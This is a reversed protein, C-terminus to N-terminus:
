KISAKRFVVFALGAAFVLFLIAAPYILIFVIPALATRVAFRALAHKDVFDAIPPSYRYYEDVLVRGWSTPLLYEDRFTRLVQVHPDLYSGYAATAIFCGGKGASSETADQVPGDDSSPPVEETPTPPPDETSSEDVVFIKSSVSELLDVGNWATNTDTTNGPEFDFDILANGAKIAKLRVMAVAGQGNFSKGGETTQSFVIISKSVDVYNSNTSPMLSGAMIQTGTTHPDEDQVEFIYPDYHLANIDIGDIDAGNTDLMITLLVTDGISMDDSDAIVSLTAAKAPLTSVFTLFAITILLKMEM